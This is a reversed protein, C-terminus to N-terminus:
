FRASTYGTLELEMTEFGPGLTARMGHQPDFWLFQARGRRTVEIAPGWSKEIKERVHEGPIAFFFRRITHTEPDFDVYFTTGPYEDSKLTDDEPMGPFLAKAQEGSMGIKLDGYISPPTPESGSIIRAVEKTEPADSAPHAESPPPPQAEDGCSALALGAILVITRSTV